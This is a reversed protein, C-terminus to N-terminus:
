AIIIDGRFYNVRGPNILITNMNVFSLVRGKFHFDSNLVCAMFGDINCILQVEPYENSNLAKICTYNSENLIDWNYYDRTTFEQPFLGTKDGSQWKIYKESLMINAQHKEM